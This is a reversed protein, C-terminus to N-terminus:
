ETKFQEPRVYFTYAFDADEAKELNTLPFNINKFYESKLINAWLAIVSERTKAQGTIEMKLTVRDFIVQNLQMDPPIANALHVLASSWYYHQSQLNKIEKINKNLLLIEDQLEKYESSDLVSKDQAIKSETDNIMGDMYFRTALALLFFIILSGILWFWFNSLRRAFFMLKLERQEITPLLNIQKM